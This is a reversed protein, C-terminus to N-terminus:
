QSNRCRGPCGGAIRRFEYRFVGPHEGEPAFSSSSRLVQQTYSLYYDAPERIYLVIRFRDFGAKEFDMRLRRIDSLSFWSSLAEASIVVDNASNLQKFFVSSFRRNASPDLDRWTLPMEEQPLYLSIIRNQDRDAGVLPYGVMGLQSGSRALTEQISTTGTKRTGIHIVATKPM